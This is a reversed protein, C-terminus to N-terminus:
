NKESSERSITKLKLHADSSKNNANFSICEYMKVKIKKKISENMRSSDKGNVTILEKSIYNSYINMLVQNFIIVQEHVKKNSFLFNQNVSAIAKKICDNNLTKFNWVLCQYPPLFEVRLIMKYFTIQNCCKLYWSPHTLHSFYYILLILFQNSSVM